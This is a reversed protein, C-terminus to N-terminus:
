VGHSYSPRSHQEIGEDLSNSYRTVAHPANEEYQTVIQTRVGIRGNPLNLAEESSNSAADQEIRTSIGGKDRTYPNTALGDKDLSRLCVSGNNTSSSTGGKQSGLNQFTARSPQSKHNGNQGGTGYRDTEYYSGLLRPIHRKAIVKFSPISAALIGVNTEIVSWYMPSAIVWTQDVSTLMDPIFTIRIISSICSFLGLSLMIGLGIKQNRPVQLHIVLRIPLTYTLVDTSINVAANALYFANINICKKNKVTTDYAAKIPSCEFLAALSNGTAQCAVLVFMFIALKRLGRDGLRMYLALVSTKIFGLCANYFISSLWVIKAYQILNDEGRKAVDAYHSGLGHSVALITAAIFAWALLAGISILVDDLGLKQVLFVRAYLRALMVVATIIAFVISIANVTPGQSEPEAAAM